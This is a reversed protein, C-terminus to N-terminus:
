CNSNCVCAHREFSCQKGYVCRTYPVAYKCINHLHYLVSLCHSGAVTPPLETGKASENKYLARYVTLVVKEAERVECRYYGFDKESVSQFTLVNPESITKIQHRSGEETWHFSFEDEAYKLVELKASNGDTVPQPHLFCTCCVHLICYGQIPYDTM